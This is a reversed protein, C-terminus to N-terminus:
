TWPLVSATAEAEAAVVEIQNRLKEADMGGALWGLRDDLRRRGDRHLHDM